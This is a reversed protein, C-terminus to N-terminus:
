IGGDSVLVVSVLTWVYGRPELFKKAYEKVGNRMVNYLDVVEGSELAIDVPDTLHAYGCAQKVHMLLVPVLVNSNFIREENALYNM